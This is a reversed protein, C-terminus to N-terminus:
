TEGDAATVPDEFLEKLIPCCLDPPLAWPASSAGAANPPLVEPLLLLPEGNGVRPPAETNAAALGPPPSDPSFTTEPLFGAPWPNPDYHFDPLTAGKDSSEVVCVLSRM